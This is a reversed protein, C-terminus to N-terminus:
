SLIFVNQKARTMATYLIRNREIIDRNHKIDTEDVFAHTYTSGQSKHCTIAYAYKVQAFYSKLHYYMIWFMKAQSSGQREALAVQRVLDLINDLEADSSEHVIKINHHIDGFFNTEFKVVTDYYKIAKDFGKVEENCIKFGVVEVEDNTSLIIRERKLIPADLILKEGIVIKPISSQKYILKRIINNYEAVTNNTWAIVRAYNMNRKFDATDFHDSLIPLIDDKNCFFVNGSVNSINDRSVLANSETLRSRVEFSKQIIPHGIAQRVINNLNITKIHHLAQISPQFPKADRQGIPPIQVPDGVMIIKLNKDNVYDVLMNFLEDHLMSAEDIILINAKDVKKNAHPDPAFTQNGHGDIQERLGLASHITAFSVKQFNIGAESQLVKVAKHTPATVLINSNRLETVIKVTVYTKGTGAVGSILYMGGIPSHCFDIITTFLEYQEDTLNHPNIHM